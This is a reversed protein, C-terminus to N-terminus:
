EDEETETDGGEETATSLETDSGEDTDSSQDDSVAASFDDDRESDEDADSDGEEGADEVDSDVTAAWMEDPPIDELLKKKYWTDTEVFEEWYTKPAATRARKPRGEWVTVNQVDLGDDLRTEM